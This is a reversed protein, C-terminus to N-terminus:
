RRRRRFVAEQGSALLLGGAVVAVVGVWGPVPHYVQVPGTAEVAAGPDPTAGRYVPRLLLVIAGAAALFIGLATRGRM